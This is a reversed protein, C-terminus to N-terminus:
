RYRLRYFLNGLWEELTRTSYFLCHNQPLVAYLGRDYLTERAPECPAPVVELGQREFCWVSRRIHFAETVLLIRQVGHSRLVAASEVANLWTNLSRPEVWIDRAPVGMETLVASMAEAEAGGEGGGSVVIPLGTQRQLWGGYRTRLLSPWYPSPAHYDAAERQAGGALVVIAGARSDRVQASTLPPWAELTRQLAHSVPSVSLLYLTLLQLGLLARGWRPRRRLVLLAALGLLLFLGPPIFFHRFFRTM